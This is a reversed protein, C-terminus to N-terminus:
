CNKAGRRELEARLYVALDLAEEYAHRLMDDPSQEVTVGYKAIGLRQRAAIDACVRAEVGTISQMAEKAEALQRELTRAFVAPVFEGYGWDGICSRFSEADTLPTPRDSM